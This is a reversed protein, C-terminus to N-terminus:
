EVPYVSRGPLCEGDPGLVCMSSLPAWAERAHPHPYDQLLFDHARIWSNKESANLMGAAAGVAMVGTLLLLARM